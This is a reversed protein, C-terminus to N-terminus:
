YDVEAITETGDWDMTACRSFCSLSVLIRQCVSRESFWLHLRREVSNGHALTGVSSLVSSISLLQLKAGEQLNGPRLNIFAPLLTPQSMYCIYASVREMGMAIRSLALKEHILQLTAGLVESLVIRLCVFFPILM